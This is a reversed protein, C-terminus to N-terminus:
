RLTVEASGVGVEIEIRSAGKGERWRSEGGVISSSSKVRQNDVRVDADGVGAEATASAFAAETSEVDIEGVGAEVEIDGTIGRIETDGVGREIELAMAAPMRIELDVSIDGGFRPYGEVELRLTRGNDKSVLEIDDVDCRWGDCTVTMRVDITTGPSDVIELDGVAHEIELKALSAADFSLTETRQDDAALSGAIALTLLAISLKRMM